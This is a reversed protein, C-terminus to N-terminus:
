FLLDEQNGILGDKQFPFIGKPWKL